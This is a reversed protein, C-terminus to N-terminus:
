IPANVGIRYSVAAWHSFARVILSRLQATFRVKVRPDSKENMELGTFLVSVKDSQCVKSEM